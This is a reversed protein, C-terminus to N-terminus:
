IKTHSFSAPPNKRHNSNESILVIFKSVAQQSVTGRARYSVAYLEYSKTWYWADGSHSGWRSNQRLWDALESNLNEYRNKDKEVFKVKVVASFEFCSVSNFIIYNKFTVSIHIKFNTYKSNWSYRTNADCLMDSGSVFLLGALITDIM